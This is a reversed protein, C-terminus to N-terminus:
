VNLKSFTMISTWMELIFTGYQLRGVSNQVERNTVDMKARLCLASFAEEM